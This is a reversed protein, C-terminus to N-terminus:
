KRAGKGYEAATDPHMVCDQWDDHGSVDVYKFCECDKAHRRLTDAGVGWERALDSVPYARGRVLGYFRSRVTAQPRRDLVRTEPRLMIGGAARADAACERKPAEPGQRKKLFMAAAFSTCGTARMLKRRGIGPDGAVAAKAAEMQKLTMAM